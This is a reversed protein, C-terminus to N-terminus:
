AAKIIYNVAYNLPRFDSASHEEGFINDLRLQIYANTNGRVGANIFNAWGYRAVSFCGWYDNPYVGCAIGGLVGDSNIGPQRGGDQQLIGL